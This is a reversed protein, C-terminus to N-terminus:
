KREVRYGTNKWFSAFCFRWRCCSVSAERKGKEGKRENNYFSIVVFHVSARRNEVNRYIPIEISIKKGESKIQIEFYNTVCYNEFRGKWDVM